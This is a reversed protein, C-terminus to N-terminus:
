VEKKKQYGPCLLGADTLKCGARVFWEASREDGEPVHMYMPKSDRGREHEALDQLLQPIGRAFVMPHCTVLWETKTFAMERRDPLDHVFCMGALREDLFVKYIRARMSVALWESSRVREKHEIDAIERWFAVLESLSAGRKYIWKM